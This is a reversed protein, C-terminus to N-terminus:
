YLVWRIEQRVTDTTANGSSDRAPAFSARSQLIRCSANDLTRSGSSSTVDCAGVRGTVGVTLRVTVSGQEKRVLSALPYDAARFLRRLDGTASRPPVTAIPPPSPSSQPPDVSAPPEPATAPTVVSALADLRVPSPEADIRVLPPPAVVQPQSEPVKTPTARQEPPPPQVEEVNFTKLGDPAKQIVTYALGTVIAYGLSAHTLAVIAIAFTRSAGIPKRQAYSV